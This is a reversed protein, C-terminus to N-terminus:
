SPVKKRCCPDESTPLPPATPQKRQVASGLFCRRSPSPLRLRHKGNACSLFLFLQLLLSDIWRFRGDVSLNPLKPQVFPARHQQYHRGSLQAPPNDTTTWRSTTMLLDDLEKLFFILQEL